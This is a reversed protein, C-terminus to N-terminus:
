LKIQDISFNGAQETPIKVKRLDAKEKKNTTKQAGPSQKEILKPNKAELLAVNPVFKMFDTTEPDLGTKQYIEKLQKEVAEPKGIWITLPKKKNGTETMHQWIDVFFSLSIEPSLKAKKGKPVKLKAIHELSKPAEYWILKHNGQEVDVIMADAPQNDILVEDMLGIAQQVALDQLNNAQKETIGLGELRAKEAVKEQASFSKKSWANMLKELQGREMAYRQRSQKRIKEIYEEIDANDSQFPPLTKM